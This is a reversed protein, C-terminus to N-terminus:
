LLPETLVYCADVESKLVATNWPRRCVGKGGCCELTQGNLLLWVHGVKGKSANIFAIRLRNDGLAAVTHYDTAKFEQKKCWEQQYWSGDPPTVENSTAFALLARVYGSCDSIHFAGPMAGIKPKSGLHYKVVGDAANHFRMLRAKDIKITKM